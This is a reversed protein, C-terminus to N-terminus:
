KGYFEKMIEFGSATFGVKSERGESTHWVLDANLLSTFTGKDQATELVGSAWTTSENPDNSELLAKADGNFNTFDDELMKVLLNYQLETPKKM